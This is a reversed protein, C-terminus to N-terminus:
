KEHFLHYYVSIINMTANWDNQGHELQVTHIHTPTYTYANVNGTKIECLIYCVM